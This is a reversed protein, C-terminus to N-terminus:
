RNVIGYFIIQVIDDLRRLYKATSESNFLKEEMGRMAMIIATAALDIDFVKFYRQEVGAKLINKFLGIEQHEYIRKVRDIFEQERMNTARMASHFNSTETYTNMRTLIYAKVKEEPTGAALIAQFIKKRFRIGEASIVAKYIEDKSSFYYYLSSKGKKLAKAIDDMTTKKYGYKRFIESAKSIILERIKEKEVM